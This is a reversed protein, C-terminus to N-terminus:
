NTVVFVLDLNSIEFIPKVKATKFVENDSSIVESVQGLVLGRPIEIETGDSYVLDDKKISEQHLIKDLLMESGFQGVLVGKAKGQDNSSFASIHSDPDSAFIVWSRKPSVDKIKGIYNDKYTVAQNIKIGSDSGKDILLYRAVGLPRAAELTFTLPNLSKQQESFAELESLKRKLSSNESTVLALQETLAKNEQSARRTLTILEFQKTFSVSTKYLGFQVPAVILQSTSKIFNLYGLSDFVILLLSLLLLVLFAQADKLFASHM